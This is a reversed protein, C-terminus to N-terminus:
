QTSVNARGSVINEEATKKGHAKGLCCLGIHMEHSKQAEKIFSTEYLKAFDKLFKNRTRHM